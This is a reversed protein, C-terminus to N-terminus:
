MTLAPLLVQASTQVSHNDPQCHQHCLNPNDIDTQECGNMGQMDGAISAAVTDEGAAPVPCAYGAVAFQAFVFILIAVKAALRRFVRSMMAGYYVCAASCRQNMDFAPM